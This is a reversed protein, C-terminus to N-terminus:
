IPMILVPPSSGCNSSNKIKRLIANVDGRCEELYGREFIRDFEENPGTYHCWKCNTTNHEDRDNLMFSNTSMVSTSTTPEGCKPCRVPTAILMTM